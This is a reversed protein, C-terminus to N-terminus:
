VLEVSRASSIHPIQDTPSSELWSVKESSPLKPVLAGLTLSDARQLSAKSKLSSRSTSSKLMPSPTRAAAPKTKPKKKDTKATVQDNSGHWSQRAAQPSKMSSPSSGTAPANPLSARVRPKRKTKAKETVRATSEIAKLYNSRMNEVVRRVDERTTRLDTEYLSTRKTYSSSSGESSMISSPKQSSYDSADDFTSSDRVFSGQSNRVSNSTWGADFSPKPLPQLMIAPPLHHDRSSDTVDLPSPRQHDRNLEAINRDVGDQGYIAVLRGYEAKWLAQITTNQEEGKTLLSATSSPVRARTTKSPMANALIHETGSIGIGYGSDPPLLEHPLLGPTGPPSDRMSSALAPSVPVENHLLSTSSPLWLRQEPVSSQRPTSAATSAQFRPSAPGGLLPSSTKVQSLQSNRKEKRGVIYDGERIDELTRQNDQTTTLLEGSSLRRSTQLKVPGNGKYPRGGLIPPKGPLVSDYSFARTALGDFEDTMRKAAVASKRLPQSIFIPAKAAPITTEYPVSYIDLDDLAYGTRSPESHLRRLTIYRRFRTEM